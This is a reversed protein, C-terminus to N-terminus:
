IRIQELLKDNEDFLCVLQWPGVIEVLDSSTGVLSRWLRFISRIHVVIVYFFLITLKM